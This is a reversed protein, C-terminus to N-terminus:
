SDSGGSGESPKPSNASNPVNLPASSSSPRVFLLEVASEKDVLELGLDHFADRLAFSGASPDWELVFDYVGDFRTEDVVPGPTYNRTLRALDNMSARTGSLRGRRQGLHTTKSNSEPLLPDGEIRRIIHAAVVRSEFSAEFGFTAELQRRLLRTTGELERNPPIVEVDYLARRDVPLEYVVDRPHVGYAIRILFDLSGALVSIRGTEPNVRYERKSEASLSISVSGRTSSSDDLTSPKESTPPAVESAVALRAEFVSVGM